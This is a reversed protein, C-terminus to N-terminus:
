LGVWARDYEDQGAQYQHRNKGTRLFNSELLPNIGQEELFHGTQVAMGFSGCAPDFVIGHNPEIINVITNVLSPPTFFEGGEQAGSM